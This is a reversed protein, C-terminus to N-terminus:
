GEPAHGQSMNLLDMFIGNICQPWFFVLLLVSFINPILPIPIFTLCFFFMIHLNIVSGYPSYDTCNQNEGWLFPATYSSLTWLFDEIGSGCYFLKLILLSKGHCSAGTQLLSFPVFPSLLLYLSHCPSSTWFNTVGDEGVCPSPSPPLLLICPAVTHEPSVLSAWLHSFKQSNTFISFGCIDWSTGPLYYRLLLLTGVKPIQSFHWVHKGTKIRSTTDLLSSVLCAWTKPKVLYLSKYIKICDAARLPTFVSVCVFCVCMAQAGAKGQGMGCDGPM